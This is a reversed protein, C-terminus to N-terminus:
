ALASSIRQLLDLLHEREGPALVSDMRSEQAEIRETVRALVATGFGTLWLGYFRRDNEDRVRRVLKRRKLDSISNSLTSKDLRYVQVLTKQHIGPNEQVLALLSFEGPSVGLDSGNGAFDRFVAAQAQRVQYGLYGPLKGLNVGKGDIASSVLSTRKEVV